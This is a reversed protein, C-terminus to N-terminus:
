REVRVWLREGDTTFEITGSESTLYIKDKGVIKTLGEMVEDSPHGFRDEAGASIVAVQPNVVALFEHTTSTDSGHHAVKLVTSSLDAKRVFHLFWLKPLGVFNYTFVNILTRCKESADAQSIFFSPPLLGHRVEEGERIADFYVTVSRSITADYIM